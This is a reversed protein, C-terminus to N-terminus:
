GNFVEGTRTWESPLAEERGRITGTAGCECEYLEVFQGEDKPETSEVCQAASHDCAVTTQAM